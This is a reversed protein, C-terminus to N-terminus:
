VVSVGRGGDGGRGGHGGQEGPQGDSPESICRHFMRQAMFEQHAFIQEFLNGNKIRNKIEHAKNACNCVVDVKEHTGIAIRGEKGPNGSRGMLGVVGPGGNQGRGFVYLTGRGYKATITIRGGENGAQGPAAADEESFPEIVGDDSIIEKAEIRLDNGNTVVRGDRSFILRNVVLYQSTTLPLMKDVVFDKPDIIQPKPEEKPACGQTAIIVAFLLVWVLMVFCLQISEKSKHQFRNM